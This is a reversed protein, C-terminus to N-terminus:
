TTMIRSTKARVPVVAAFSVSGNIFRTFISVFERGTKKRQITRMAIIKGM